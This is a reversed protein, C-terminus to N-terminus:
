TSGARRVPILAVFLAGLALCAALFTLCAGNSLGADKMAGFIPSGLAGALNACMNIIGVAVAAMMAAGAAGAEQRSSERVPAGLVSALIAKLAKSRAAGGAVRVEEPVHGMAGYCDRAALGLGEYVSRVLDLYGTRTSLGVLQARAAADIFPGREGAEHIYPHYLAACPKAELM